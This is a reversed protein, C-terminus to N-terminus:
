TPCSYLYKSRFHGWQTGNFNIFSKGAFGYHLSWLASPLIHLDGATNGHWINSCTGIIYCTVTNLWGSVWGDGRSSLYDLSSHRCNLSFLTSYLRESHSEEITKEKLGSSSLLVIVLNFPLISTIVEDHALLFLLLACLMFTLSQNV